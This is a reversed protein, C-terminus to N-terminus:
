VEDEPVFAERRRAASDALAARLEERQSGDLELGYTESLEVFQAYPIIVEIPEGRDDVVIKRDITATSMANM